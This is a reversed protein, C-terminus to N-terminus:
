PFSIVYGCMELDTVISISDWVEKDAYLIVAGFTLLAGYPWHILIRVTAFLWLQTNRKEKGLTLRRQTIPTFIMLCLMLHVVSKKSRQFYVRIGTGYGWAGHISAM